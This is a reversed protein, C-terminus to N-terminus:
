QGEGREEVLTAEVMLDSALKELRSRLGPM